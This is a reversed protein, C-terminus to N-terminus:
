GRARTDCAAASPALRLRSASPSCSAGVPWSHLAPEGRGRPRRRALALRELSFWWMVYVWSVAGATGVMVDAYTELKGAVGVAGGWFFM